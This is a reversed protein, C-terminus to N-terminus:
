YDTTEKEHRQGDYAFEFNLLRSCSVVLWQGSVVTEHFAGEDDEALVQQDIRHRNDGFAQKDPPEWSTLEQQIMGGHRPKMGANGCGLAVVVNAIEPRRIRDHEISFRQLLVFGQSGAVHESNTREREVDVRPFFRQHNANAQLDARCEAFGDRSSFRGAKPIQGCRHRQLQRARRRFAFSRRACMFFRRRAFGLNGCDTGLREINKPVFADRRSGLHDFRRREKREGTPSATFRM